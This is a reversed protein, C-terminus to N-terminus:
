SVLLFCQRKCHGDVHSCATVAFSDLQPFRCPRISHAVTPRFCGVSGDSAALAAITVQTNQYISDMTVSERQWDEASDQIICLSDIWLYPINLRRTVVIADQFTQSMAAISISSQHQLYNSKITRIISSKGWCHSLTTYRGKRGETVWLRVTPDEEGSVVIVRTPLQTEVNPREASNCLQHEDKCTTMWYKALAFSPECGTHSINLFPESNGLIELLPAVSVPWM